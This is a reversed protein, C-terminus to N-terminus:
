PEDPTSLINYDIDEFSFTEHESLWDVAANCQENFHFCAVDPDVTGDAFTVKTDRYMKTM